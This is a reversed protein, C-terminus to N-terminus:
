VHTIVNMFALSFFDKQIFIHEHRSFSDNLCLGLEQIQLNNNSFIRLKEIFIFGFFVKSDNYLGRVCFTNNVIKCLKEVFDVLRLRSNDFYYGWIKQCQGKSLCWSIHTSINAKAWSLPETNRHTESAWIGSKEWSPLFVNPLHWSSDDPTRDVSVVFHGVSHSKLSSFLVDSSLLGSWVDASGLSQKGVNSGHVCYVM